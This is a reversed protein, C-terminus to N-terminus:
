VEAHTGAAAPFKESVALTVSLLPPMVVEVATLTVASAAVDGDAITEPGAVPVITVTPDVTVIEAEAEGPDPAVTACTCNREPPEVTNPVVVVATAPIYEIEHTGADAELKEIVARTRSVSPFVPVEDAMVTVATAAVDTENVAGAFLEVAVTPVAVVSVAEAAGIAPAVIADTVNKAPPTCTPAGTGVAGKVMAQVGAAAPAVATVAWAVSENPVITVDEVTVTFTLLEAGVMASVAGNAPETTVTPLETARVAVAVAPDPAPAVTM